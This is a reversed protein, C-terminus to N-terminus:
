RYGIGYTVTMYPPMNNHAQGNGTFSTTMSPVVSATLLQPAGVPPEIDIDAIVGTYTHTHPPMEDITLTHTEQGGFNGALASGLLFRGNLDPLTFSEGAALYDALAPYDARALTQGNCPLFGDPLSGYFAAIEGVRNHDPMNELLEYFLQAIDGPEMSGFKEWNYAHFLENIAGNLFPWLSVPLSVLRTLKGTETPLDPTLFANSL